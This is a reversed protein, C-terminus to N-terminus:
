YSGGSTMGSTSTRPTTQRAPRSASTGRDVTSTRQSRQITQNSNNETARAGIEQAQISEEASTPINVFETSKGNQLSGVILNFASTFYYNDM